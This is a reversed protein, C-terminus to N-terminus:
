PRSGPRSRSQPRNRIQIKVMEFLVRFSCPLLAFFARFDALFRSFQPFFMENGEILSSFDPSHMQICHNTLHSFPDDLDDPAYPSSSLRLVGERYLYVGQEMDVLAWVRMDFKRGGVLLPSEIYRQAVYSDAQPADSKWKYDKKWENIQNLKTFLFIGKGQASGTPKMIWITGSPHSKFKMATRASSQLFVMPRARLGFLSTYYHTQVAIVATYLQM